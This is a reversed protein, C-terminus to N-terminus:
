SIRNLAACTSVVILFALTFGFRGLYQRLSRVNASERRVRVSRNNITRHKLSSM